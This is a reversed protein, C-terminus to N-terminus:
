KRRRPLRAARARRSWEAHCSGPGRAGSCIAAKADKRDLAPVSGALPYPRDCIACHLHAQPVAQVVVEEAPHIRCESKIQGYENWQRVFDGNRCKRCVAQDFTVSRLALPARCLHHKKSVQRAQADERPSFWMRCQDCFPFLSSCICPECRGHRNTFDTTAPFLGSAINADTPKLHGTLQVRIADESKGFTSSLVGIAQKYLLGRARLAHYGAVFDGRNTPRGRLRPQEKDLRALNPEIARYATLFWSSFRYEQAEETLAWPVLVSLEYVTRAAAAEPSRRRATPRGADWRKRAARFLRRFVRDTPPSWIHAPEVRAVNLLDAFVVANTRGVSSVAWAPLLNASLPGRIAAQRNVPRRM